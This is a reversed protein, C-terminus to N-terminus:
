RLLTKQLLGDISPVGSSSKQLLVIPRQFWQDTQLGDITLGSYQTMMGAWKPVVAQGLGAEVMAAITELSDLECLVPTEGIQTELYSAILRGGWTSRDYLIWPLEEQQPEIPTERPTIHMFPEEAMARKRIEKPVSFPPEVGIVADIEDAALSEYLAQSSGPRVTLRVEPAMERFHLVVKPVFDLMATSIAGLRYPGRLGDSTVHGSLRQADRVLAHAAPLMNRCEQTPKASQASRTLLRCGLDTELVRIRQSVAAATLGQQRAAAAISGTTVVALLSELFRTDM